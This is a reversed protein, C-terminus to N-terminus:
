YKGFEEDSLKIRGQSNGKKRYSSEINKNNRSDGSKNYGDNVYSSYEMYSNQVYKRKLKFKLVQESLLEAQTALEESAAASEESTASNEQVVTSVQIVGQNIQEIGLSQEKSASAISDVYNAVKAINEVIENLADATENAIKTGEQVKNVSGEIMSTTEKAASASRAALNRVEEAVVAFGKGHQGARAAEVAANLALINTQFAIEDIVKIIKSINISAENIEGMSKLMEKMQTNGDKANHKAIEAINNAEKANEANIKTQSSIEELSASLEEVSSAQETAGQSLSISSDSVQKSGTAVQEAATSIKTMVDNLNDTMKSFTAALIGIEDKTDIDIEIDLDGDTVKEAIGVLKTVPKSIIRSIFIGLLVAIIMGIVVIVIMTIVTKNADKSYEISLAEGDQNKLDFMEQITDNIENALTIAQESRLVTLAEDEKNALALNIINEQIPKFKDIAKKLNIFKQMGAETDISKEYLALSEQIYEDYSSIRDVYKNRNSSGKDLILDRLNIRIRQYSTSVESIDGLAVGYNNYLSSYKDDSTKLNYIGIFGVIGAILSVIIFSLVLKKGIKMNYFWKM